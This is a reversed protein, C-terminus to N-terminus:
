QQVPFPGSRKAAGGAPPEFSFTEKISKEVVGMKQKMRPLSEALFTETGAQDEESYRGATATIVM